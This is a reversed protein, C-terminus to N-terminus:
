EKCTIVITAPEASIGNQLTKFKWFNLNRVNGIMPVTSIINKHRIKLRVERTRELLSCLSSKQVIIGSSESDM